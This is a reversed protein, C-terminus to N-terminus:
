NDSAPPTMVIKKRIGTQSSPKEAKRDLPIVFQFVSGKDLESEVWIRGGHGEVLRQTIMMGLGTGKQTRARTDDSRFYDENFIRKLDASSMGIGSDRVTVYLSPGLMRGNPLAYSDVPEVTVAIESGSPSYKHANSILNTMVQVLKKHDGFVTPLEAPMDLTVRQQKAELQQQFSELTDEVVTRFQLPEYAIQLRGADSAAIDRLDDIIDQMREANSRIVALFQERQQDNMASAVRPNLLTDSYGKISTLPNKLEHAAFAVFESKNEAASVIREYLQANALAISARETLRNVFDLDTLRFPETTTELVLLAIVDEGSLMPVTIQSVAGRLSAVYDPDFRLDALDAVRTRMVRQAIGRDIPWLSGEAGEPYDEPEYGEIALVRMTQSVVNVEGVVCAEAGTVKRAWRLTIKAVERQDLARALESDISALTQLEELRQNLASGTMEFLRANEIAVGAQSAFTSLLQVEDRNFLQGNKKNLVELVGIIRDKALLPVAVISNSRFGTQRTVEGQWSRDIRTDNAVQPQKTRMVAGILGRDQSVRTGTLEQEAEGLVVRFIMDDSDEDSRLLLSGAEAELIAVASETILRLLTDVDGAEAAVLQQSVENLAALQRARANVEDFLQAKELATAALGALNIFTAMDDATYPITDRKGLAFVGLRRNQAVLPVGMWARIRPSDYLTGFTGMQKERNYDEYRRPEGSRLIQSYIDNGLPWRRGERANYREDEELFFAFYLQEQEADFFAIYQFDSKLLRNTQASILELLDDLTRTFNSAQGLSSLVDLEKVRQELTEVSQAREIAVALQGTLVSLFRLDEYDYARRAGQRPGLVVFGFLRESGPLGAIVSPALVDIRTKDSLLEPPLPQGPALTVPAGVALLYSAVPANAPFRLETEGGAAMYDGGPARQVFVVMHSPNIGQQVADRFASIAKDVNTLETLRQGFDESISQLARRQRFFVSDIRDQLRIRVPLFLAAIVFMTVAILVPNDPVISSAMLGFGLTLLFYGIVLAVLLFVYTISQSILADSDIRRPANLAFPFSLVLALMFPLAAQPSIPLTFGPAVLRIFLAALWVMFPVAALMLGILVIGSQNRAERTAARRRQWLMTVVFLVGSALVAGLALSVGTEYAAPSSPGSILLAAAVGASIAAAFVAPRLLPVRYVVPLPSPISLGFLLMLGGSLGAAIAWLPGLISTTSTDYVGGITVAIAACIGSAVFAGVSHRRWLFLYVATALAIVGALFPIGFYVSLDVFPLRILTVSVTRPSGSASQVTVAVTGGVGARSLVEGLAGRASALDDSVLATGDVAIIQDGPALGADLGPWSATGVPGADVVTLAPSVLVGLFPRSAVILATALYVLIALAAAAILGGSLAYLVRERPSPPVRDTTRPLLGQLRATIASM